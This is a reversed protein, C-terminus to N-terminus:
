VKLIKKTEPMVMLANCAEFFELIEGRNMKNTIRQEPSLETRITLADIFTRMCIFMFRKAANLIENDGAFTKALSSLYRCGYNREIHFRNELLDRQFDQLLENLPKKSQLQDEVIIRITEKNLLETGCEELYRLIM